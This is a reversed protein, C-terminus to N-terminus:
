IGKKWEEDDGNDEDDGSPKYEPQQFNEDPKYTDGQEPYSSDPADVIGGCATNDNILCDFCKSFGKEESNDASISVILQVISVVLFMVAAAVLRKIFKSQKKKIDSENNATVAKIFDVSGIIILGLPTVIKLLLIVIRTLISLPEPITIGGCSIYSGALSTNYNNLILYIGLFIISLKIINKKM